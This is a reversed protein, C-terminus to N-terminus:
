PQNPQCPSCQASLLPQQSHNEFQAEYLSNQTQLKVCQRVRFDTITHMENTVHKDFIDLDDLVERESNPTLDAPIDSVYKPAKTSELM